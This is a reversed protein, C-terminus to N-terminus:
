ATRRTVVYGHEKTLYDCAGLVKIGAARPPRPLVVEKGEVRCGNKTVRRLAGDLTYRM